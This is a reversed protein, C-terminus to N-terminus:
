SETSWAHVLKVMWCLQSLVLWNTLWALVKWLYCFCSVKQSSIKTFLDSSPVTIFVSSMAQDNRQQKLCFSPENMDGFDSDFNVITISIWEKQKRAAYGM